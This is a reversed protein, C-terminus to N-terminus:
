RLALAVDATLRSFRLEFPEDARKARALEAINGSAFAEFLADESPLVLSLRQDAFREALLAVNGSDPNTVIAAGAALAEHATLCFTEPCLSWVLVVDIADREIAAIMANGGGATAEVTRFTAPVEDDGLLGLHFFRYRADSEFENALARFPFWGKHSQPLGLFAVRLERHATLPAQRTRPEFTCHPVVLDRAPQFVAGSKWLALTGAAPAVVTADVRRLLAACQEAQLRRTDGYTCVSCAPSDPPPAGCFEVDNRMLNWGTCVAHYDHVWFYARDAALADAIGELARTSHGHLSHIALIRLEGTEAPPLTRLASAVESARYVGAPRDNLLVGVAHDDGDLDTCPLPVWPFLHISDFGESAFAGRERRLSVQVGGSSVTYDDHSITVHLGRKGTRFRALQTVLGAAPLLPPAEVAAKIGAVREPLTRQLAIAAVRFDARAPAVQKPLRGEDRGHELFHLFPHVGSEAVDRYAELYHSTSFTPNPDRGERWGTLIYHDLADVGGAAVDENRDLYYDVDFEPAFWSRLTTLPAPLRGEREGDLVYHVFPNEGAEAVDRYFAVYQATRFEPTPDRGERWGFEMFHEFPESAAGAIDAYRSAYYEADFAARVQRGEWEGLRSM